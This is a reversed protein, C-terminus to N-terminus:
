EDHAASHKPQCSTARGAIAKQHHCDVGLITHYALLYQDPAIYNKAANTATGFTIINYLDGQGLQAPSIADISLSFPKKYITAMYTIDTVLSRFIFFRPTMDINSNIFDLPLISFLLRM